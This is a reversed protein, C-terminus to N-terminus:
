NTKYLMSNSNCPKTGIITDDECNDILIDLHTNTGERVICIDPIFMSNENLDLDVHKCLACEYVWKQMFM